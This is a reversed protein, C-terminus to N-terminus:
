GLAPHPDLRVTGQRRADTRGGRTVRLDHVGDGAVPVLDGDDPLHAAAEVVGPNGPGPVPSPIGGAYLHDPLDRVGDARATRLLATRWRAPSPGHVVAHVGPPDLLV